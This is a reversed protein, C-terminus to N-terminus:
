PITEATGSNCNGVTVVGVKTSSCTPYTGTCQWCTGTRTIWIYATAANSGQSVDTCIAGGATGATAAMRTCIASIARNETSSNGSQTLNILLVVVIAAVVVAGGILLLYELAGQGKTM